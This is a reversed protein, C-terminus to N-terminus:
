REIIYDSECLGFLHKMTTTTVELFSCYLERSCKSKYM